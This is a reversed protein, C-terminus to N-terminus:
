ILVRFPESSPPYCESNCPKQVKNMLKRLSPYIGRGYQNYLYIRFPGSSPTYCESNSCVLTMSVYIYPPRALVTHVKQLTRKRFLLTLSHVPSEISLTTSRVFGVPKGRTLDLHLFNLHVTPYPLTIGTCVASTRLTALPQPQWM